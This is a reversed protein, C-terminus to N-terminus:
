HNKTVTGSFFDKFDVDHEFLKWYEIHLSHLDGFQHNMEDCPHRDDCPLNDRHLWIVCEDGFCLLQQIKLPLDFDLM